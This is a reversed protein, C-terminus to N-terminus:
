IGQRGPIYKKWWDTGPQEPVVIIGKYEAVRDLVYSATKNVPYATNPIELEDHVTGDISKKFRHQSRV